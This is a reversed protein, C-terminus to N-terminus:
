EDWRKKSLVGEESKKKKRERNVLEWVQQGTKTRKAEEIWREGKERTKRECLEKYEKELDRYKEKEEKRIRWDRLAKRVKKKEIRCEEDWWGRMAKRKTKRREDKLSGGIEKKVKEWEEQVEGGEVRVNRLRERLQRWIRGGLKNEEGKERGEVVEGIDMRKKM